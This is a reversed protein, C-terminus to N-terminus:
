QEIIAGAGPISKTVQNPDGSYFITGSGSLTAELGESPFLRILGSGSV